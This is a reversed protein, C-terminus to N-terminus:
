ARICVCRYTLVPIHSPMAPTYMNAYMNCIHTHVYTCVQPCIHAVYLHTRQTTYMHIYIHMHAYILWVYPECIGVHEYTPTYMHAYPTAVILLSRSIIPRKQLIYDRKYPEKAFSVKIRLSGVIRLWGMTSHAYALWMCTHEKHVYTCVYTHVYTLLFVCVPTYM